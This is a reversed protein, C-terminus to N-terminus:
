INHLMIPNRVHQVLINHLVEGNTTYIYLLKMHELQAINNFVNRLTSMHQTLILIHQAIILCCILTTLYMDYTTQFNKM